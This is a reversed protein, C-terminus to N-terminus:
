IKRQYMQKALNFFVERKDAFDNYLAQQEETLSDVLDHEAIWMQSQAVRLDYDMDDRIDQAINEMMESIAENTAKKKM